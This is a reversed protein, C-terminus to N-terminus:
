VWGLIEVSAGEGRVGVASNGRGAGVEPADEAVSAVPKFEDNNSIAGGTEAVEGSPGNFDPVAGDGVDEIRDGGDGEGVGGCPGVYPVAGDQGEDFIVGGSTTEVGLEVAHVLEGSGSVGPGVDM